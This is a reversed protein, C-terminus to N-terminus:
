NDKAKIVPNANFMLHIGTLVMLVAYAYSPRSVVTDNDMRYVAFALNIASGILAFGSLKGNVTNWRVTFLMCGLVIFLGGCIKIMALLGPTSSQADFFPNVVGDFPVSFLFEPAFIQQFGGAILVLASIDSFDGHPM